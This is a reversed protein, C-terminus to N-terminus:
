PSTSQGGTARPGDAHHSNKAHKDLEQSSTHLYKSTGFHQPLLNPPNDAWLDLVTRATCTARPCDAPLTRVTRPYPVSRECKPHAEPPETANLLSDARPDRVTQGTDSSRGGWGRPGDTKHQASNSLGKSRSNRKRKTTTQPNTGLTPLDTTVVHGQCVRTHIKPQSNPAHASNSRRSSNKDAGM